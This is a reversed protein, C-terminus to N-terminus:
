EMNKMNTFNGLILSPNELDASWFRLRAIEKAHYILLAKEEANLDCKEIDSILNDVAARHPSHSVLWGIGYSGKDLVERSIETFVKVENKNMIKQGTLYVLAM